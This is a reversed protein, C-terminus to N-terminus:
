RSGRMKATTLLSAILIRNDGELTACLCHLQDLILRETVTLDKKYTAAYLGTLGPQPRVESMIRLYDKLEDHNGIEQFLVEQGEIERLTYGRPGILAIRGQIVDLFQPIEDLSTKRLVAGIKSHVRPDYQERRKKRGGKFLTTEFPHQDESHSDRRLTRVKSILTKNIREGNPGLFAVAERHILPWDDSALVSLVSVALLPSTLALFLCSLRKERTKKESSHLWERSRSLNPDAGLLLKAQNIVDPDVSLDIERSIGREVRFM